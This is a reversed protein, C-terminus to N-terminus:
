GIDKEIKCWVTGNPQAKVLQVRKYIIKSIEDPGNLLIKVVKVLHDYKFECDSVWHNQDQIMHRAFYFITDLFNTYLELNKQMLKRLSKDSINALALCVNVDNQMLKDSLLQVIIQKVKSNDYLNVAFETLKSYLGDNFMKHICELVQHENNNSILLEWSMVLAEDQMNCTSVGLEILSEIIINTCVGNILIHKLTDNLRSIGCYEIYLKLFEDVIDVSITSDKLYVELLKDCANKLESCKYLNLRGKSSWYNHLNNELIEEKGVEQAKAITTEIFQACQFAKVTDQISIEEYVAPNELLVLFTDFMKQIELFDVESM